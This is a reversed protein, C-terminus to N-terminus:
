MIWINKPDEKPSTYSHWTEDTNPYTYCIKYLPTRGGGGGGGWGHAVGFIGM